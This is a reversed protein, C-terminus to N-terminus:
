WCCCWLCCYCLCWGCCFFVLLAAVVAAVVFVFAVGGGGGGGGCVVYVIVVFIVFIVFVVFVVVALLEAAFVIVSCSQRPLLLFTDAANQLLVADVFEGRYSSSTLCTRRMKRPQEVAGSVTKKTYRDTKTMYWRTVLADVLRKKSTLLASLAHAREVREARAMRAAEKAQVRCAM